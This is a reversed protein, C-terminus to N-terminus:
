LISEIRRQLELIRTSNRNQPDQLLQQVISLATLTNGAQLEQVAQQYLREAASSLVLSGGGLLTQVRDKQVMAQTNNPNLELAQNLQELAIPYQARVNQDIIVRASATLENSRALARTDPPPPRIGMDIEAQTLIGRMGPYQPNIEALNQLDAYAEISRQRTGAVATSLRQDFSAVFAQPDIVQDIRLELIGADQNVPFMIKVEQTFRKAENLRDIGENRLRNGLLRVGEEYSHYANSLLQSMEAYLPATPPITRGTRLSMAGRVVTLWYSIEPDSETHTVLWRSQARVLLEEAQDFSGGFYITRANTVLERVERVIVENERRVLEDGLLVLRQDRLERLPASEQIGLSADYQEGTRFIRDRAVDFNNSALANQAEQYLRDGDRRLFDAQAVEAQTAPIRSTVIAKVSNLQAAMSRYDEFLGQILGQDSEDQYPRALGETAAIASDITGAMETLLALAETPYRRLIPEQGEEQFLEGNLLGIAQNLATEQLDVTTRIQSNVITYYRVASREEDELLQRRLNLAASYADNHYFITDYPALLEEQYLLIPTEQSEIEQILPDLVSLIEQYSSRIGREYGLAETLVWSGTEWRVVSDEPAITQYQQGLRGTERLQEAAYNMVIYRLFPGGREAVVPYGFISHPVEGDLEYLRLWPDAMGLCLALYDLAAAFEPIADAYEVERIMALGQSFAREAAAILTQEAQPLYYDWCATIVGIMGENVSDAAGNLLRPAFSLFSRDGQVKGEAQLQRLWLAYQNSVAIFTMKSELLAELDQIIRNMSGALEAIRPAANRAAIQELNALSEGIAPLQANAARIGQAIDEIGARVDSELPDGFGANFFEAQYLSLGQAYENLAETYRREELHLRAAALILELQRRNVTFIALQRVRDLFEQTSSSQDPELAAIRNSLYLLRAANDPDYELVDLLEEALAYYESRLRAIRQLREQAQSFNNPNKRTFETLLQVAQDYKKQDILADAEILAADRRGAGFLPSACLSFLTVLLQFVRLMRRNVRYM